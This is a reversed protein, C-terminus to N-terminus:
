SLDIGWLRSNIPDKAFVKEIVVDDTRTAYRKKAALYGGKAGKDRSTNLPDGTWFENAWYKGKTLDGRLGAFYKSVVDYKVLDHMDFPIEPSEGIFTAVSAETSGAYTRDITIHTTDTFASIRYFLGDGGKIWRDVMAATYVTGSGIIAASANTFTATGTVYDALTLEKITYPYELTVTYADQPTPYIGVDDRRPYMWTPIATPAISIANLKKWQDSSHVTKLIYDVSGVTITASELTVLDPPYDYFQTDAVTTLTGTKNTVYKKLDGYIFQITSNIESKIWTLTTTSEDQTLKQIDGYLGQFTKRPM